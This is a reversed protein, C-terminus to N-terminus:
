LSLLNETRNISLQILLFVFNMYIDINNSINGIFDECFWCWAPLESFLCCLMIAWHSPFVSCARKADEWKMFFSNSHIFRLFFANLCSFYFFWIMWKRKAKKCFWGISLRWAKTTFLCAYQEIISSHSKSWSDCFSAREQTKIM